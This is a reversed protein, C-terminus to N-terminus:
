RKVKYGEKATSATSERFPHRRTDAKESYRLQREELATYAKHTVNSQSVNSTTGNGTTQSENPLLVRYLRRVPSWSYSQARAAKQLRHQTTNGVSNM